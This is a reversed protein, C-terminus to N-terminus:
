YFTCTKAQYVQQQEIRRQSNQISERKSPASFNQQKKETNVDQNQNQDKLSRDSKKPTVQTSSTIQSFKRQSKSEISNRDFSSSIKQQQRPTPNLNQYRVNEQYIKKEPLNKQQINLNKKTNQSIDNQMSFQCLDILKKKNDNKLMQSLIDIVKRENEQLNLFKNVSNNLTTYNMQYFYFKENAQQKTNVFKSLCEVIEKLQKLFDELDKNKMNQSVWKNLDNLKDEHKQHYQYKCGLCYPRRKSCGKDLCIGLIKSNEHGCISCFLASFQSDDAFFNM